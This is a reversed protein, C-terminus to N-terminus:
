HHPADGNLGGNRRLYGALKGALTQVNPERLITYHNGPVQYWDVKPVLQEWLWRPEYAVSASKQAARFQVVRQSSPAPVYARTARINAQFVESYNQFIRRFDAVRLEAPF